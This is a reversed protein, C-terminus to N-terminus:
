PYTSDTAERYENAFARMVGIDFRGTMRIYITREYAVNRISYGGDM